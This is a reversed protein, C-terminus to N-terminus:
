SMDQLPLILSFTSGNGPESSIKIIGGHQKAIEQSIYLGIGLGSASKATGSSRYFQDFLKGQEEVAIGCGFDTVDVQIHEAGRNTRLVVKDAKPSYKIANSLLNNVIQEIRGKDAVIKNSVGGQFVIQHTLCDHQFIEIVEQIMEDLDFESKNLLVKGSQIRSVDLLETILTNLKETSRYAKDLYSPVPEYKEEGLIEKLLEIYAKISTLPIRLEHSAMNLFTDKRHESQKQEHINTDTGIWKIINNKDDKIAIAKVLFWEYHGDRAALRQEVIFDEGTKVCHDWLEEGIKLDDPHVAKRWNEDDNSELGTYEEWRGNVYNSEGEADAGWAIIPLSELLLRSEMKVAEKERIEIALKENARQLAETREEVIKELEQPSRYQLVKPTVRILAFVTGISVVATIFRMVASLKYVPEWFIVADVLHTLGCSLIFSIFLLLIGPFPLDANKKKYLFFGLIVPIAFYALWIGIDSLIYFWGHFDSWTGCQWRPPWLSTDFINAFFESPQEDSVSAYMGSVTEDTSSCSAIPESHCANIIPVMFFLTSLAKRKM